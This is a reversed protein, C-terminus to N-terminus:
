LLTRIIYNTSFIAFPSFETKIQNPTNPKYIYYEM